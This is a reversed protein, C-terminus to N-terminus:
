YLRRLGRMDGLGLSSPDNTCPRIQTSMTLSPFSSESVHGLGFAHGWEHTAVARLSWRNNCGPPASSGSYWPYGRNVKMDSNVAVGNAYQTCAVALNGAPLAGFSVVNVGDNAVCRGANNIGANRTTTGAYQGRASVRDALGCNNAQGNINQMARRFAYTTADADLGNPRSGLNLRWRLTQNWRFGGLSYAGQRCEASTAAIAGELEPAEEHVVVGDHFRVVQGEPSTELRVFTTSGDDHLVEMAVGTGAEPATMTLGDIILEDGAAVGDLNDFPQEEVAGEGDGIEATFCASLLLGTAACAALPSLFQKLSAM